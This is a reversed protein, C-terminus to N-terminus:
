VCCGGFIQKSITNLRDGTNVESDQLEIIKPCCGLFEKAKKMHAVQMKHRHMMFTSEEAIKKPVFMNFIFSFRKIGFQELQKFARKTERISLLEPILVFIFSTKNSKLVKLVDDFKKADNIEAGCALPTTEIFDKWEEPKKLLSLTHGTPATDFVVYNYEESLLHTALEALAAKESECPSSLKKKAFLDPNIHKGWLNKKLKKPENNLKKDWIDSLALVPDTSVLLVKYKDSLRLAIASSISSKGVGGKGGVFIFETM